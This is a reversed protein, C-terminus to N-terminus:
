LSAIKDKILLDLSNSWSDQGFHLEFVIKITDIDSDYKKPRQTRM